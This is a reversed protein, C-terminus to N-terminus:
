CLHNDTVLLIKSLSHTVKENHDTTTATFTLLKLQGLCRKGNKTFHKKRFQPPPCLTM